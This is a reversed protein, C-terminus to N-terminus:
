LFDAKFNESLSQLYGVLVEFNENSPHNQFLLKHMQIKEILDSSLANLVRMPVNAFIM